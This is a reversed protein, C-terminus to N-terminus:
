AKNETTTETVATKPMCADCDGCECSGKNSCCSDDCVAPKYDCCGSLSRAGPGTMCLSLLVLALVTELEAGPFTWGKSNMAVLMIIFLIGAAKKTWFGLVLLAWLLVEAYKVIEFWVSKSLFTLWLQHAAWWVFEIAEAPAGFKTIWHYLFIWWITVRLLLLGRNIYSPKNACAPCNTHSM